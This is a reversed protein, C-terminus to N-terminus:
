LLNGQSELHKSISLWTDLHAKPNQVLAQISAATKSPDSSCHDASRNFPTCHDSQTM